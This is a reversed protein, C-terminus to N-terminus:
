VMEVRDREAPTWTADRRLAQVAACEDATLGLRIM